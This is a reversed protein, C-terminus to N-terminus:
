STTRKAHGAAALALIIAETTGDVRGEDIAQDVERSAAEIASDLAERQPESKTNQARAQAATEAKLFDDFWRRGFTDDRQQKLKRELEEPTRRRRVPVDIDWGVAPKPYPPQIFPPIGVPFEGLAVAGLPFTGLMEIGIKQTSSAAISTRAAEAPM